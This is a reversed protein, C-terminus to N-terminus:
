LVEAFEPKLRRFVSAGFIFILLCVAWYLIGLHYDQWLPRHYIFSARYGDVIYYLPNIKIIFQYRSPIMEIGWVIPTSWFWVNIIVALAQGIDRCFVNASALFWGLGLSLVSVAFMYYLFQLNYVSPFIGNVLLVIMLIVLLVGHTIMSVFLSVVPLIETPFVTRTVLNANSTVSNTSTTVAESFMSWPILGCLFVVIFPMDGAPKVKFGVSFVFWYVGVIMLPHIISWLAGGGLTGIYRSRLERMAMVFIMSRHTYLRKLFAFLRVAFM